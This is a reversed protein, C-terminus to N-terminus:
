TLTEFNELCRRLRASLAESKLLSSNDASLAKYTAFRSQLEDGEVSRCSKSSVAFQFMASAYNAESGEFISPIM